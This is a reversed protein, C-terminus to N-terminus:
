RKSRHTDNVTQLIADAINRAAKPRALARAAWGMKRRRDPDAALAAMARALNAATDEKPEVHEVMMAAGQDVFVQANARQHDDASQPYPLLIMPLGACALEALTTAGARSIIWDANAYEGPMDRFFPEVVASIGLERYAEAIQAAQRPGSQHAIKWLIRDGKLQRIASVVADNLSEAGQSGGLILLRITRSTLDASLPAARDYLVAIQERVANGTMVVDSTARLRLRSQEFSICVRNAFRCLWRTTRGPIVNQELLVVPIKLRSAAWVLPASAFGGLGIVATPQLELLLRSAQRCARGNQWLFRFPNRKLTTSPEVPLVQHEFHHESVIMSEIARTSGVFVIRSGPDDALLQHAVAIGPFLHGGTGGGAFIYTAASTM